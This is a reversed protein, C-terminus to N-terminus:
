ASQPGGRLGAHREVRVGRRLRPVQRLLHLHRGACGGRRRAMPTPARVRATLGQTPPVVRPFIAAAAGHRRAAAVSCRGRSEPTVVCASVVESVDYM